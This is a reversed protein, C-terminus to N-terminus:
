RSLNALSRGRGLRAKVLSPTGKLIAQYQQAAEEFCGDAEASKARALGLADSQLPFVAALVAGAFLTSLSLTLWMFLGSAEAGRASTPQSKGSDSLV